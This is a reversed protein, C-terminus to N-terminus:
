FKSQLSKVAKAKCVHKAVSYMRTGKVLKQRPPLYEHLKHMASKGKGFPESFFQIYDNIFKKSKCNITTEFIISSSSGIPQALNVLNFFQRRTGTIGSIYETITSEDIYAIGAYVISTPLNISSTGRKTFVKKWNWNYNEVKEKTNREIVKHREEPSLNAFKELEKEFDNKTLPSLKNVEDAYSNGSWLLVLVVIALLKKM